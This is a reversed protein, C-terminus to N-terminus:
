THGQTIRETVTSVTAPEDFTVVAWQDPEIVEDPDRTLVSLGGDVQRYGIYIATYDMKLFRASIRLLPYPGGAHVLSWRWRDGFREVYIQKETETAASIARAVEALPSPQFVSRIFRAREPDAVRVGSYPDSM